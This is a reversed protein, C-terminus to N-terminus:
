YGCSIEIFIGNNILKDVKLSMFRHRITVLISLFRFNRILNTIACIEFRKQFRVFVFRIPEATLRTGFEFKKYFSLAANLSHTLRIAAWEIYSHSKDIFDMQIRNIWAHIRTHTHPRHIQKTYIRKSYLILLWLSDLKHLFINQQRLVAQSLWFLYICAFTGNYKVRYSPLFFWQFCRM